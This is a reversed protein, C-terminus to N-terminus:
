PPFCVWETSCLIPMLSVVEHKVSAQSSRQLFRWRKPFDRHHDHGRLVVGVFDVPLEDPKTKQRRCASTNTTASANTWQNLHKSSPASSKKSFGTRGDSTDRKHPRIREYSICLFFGEECACMYTYQLNMRKPVVVSYFAFAGKKFQGM